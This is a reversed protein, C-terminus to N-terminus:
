GTDDSDDSGVHDAGVLSVELGADEEDPSAEACASEDVSEEKDRLGLTEGELLNVLHHLLGGRASGGLPLRGGGEGRAGHLIALQVGLKLIDLAPAGGELRGAYYAQHPNRLTSSSHHEILMLTSYYNTKDQM